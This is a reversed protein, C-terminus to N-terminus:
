KIVMKKSLVEEKSTATIIYIGPTLKKETDTLYITRGFAGTIISESYVEKGTVDRVVLLVKDNMSGTLAIGINDGSNPNPYIDFNFKETFSFDVKVLESYTAQGNFDTQKLRYYSVGHYPNQDFATYDHTTTSNGAADNEAVFKFSQGDVTKEITFYDNNRESATTWKLDIVSGNPEAQFSILEIPLPTQASNTTAFTFRRNDTLTTGPVATFQYTYGSVLSAGTIPTEDSFVGDNDTDILLCLDTVTISGLGSLDFQIDVNGVDVAASNSADRESVRWIRNSRAQVGAPIDSTNTASLVGNDHGWILFENDGLSSPNLM